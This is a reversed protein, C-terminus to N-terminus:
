PERTLKVVGAKALGELFAEASDTPVVVGQIGRLGHAVRAMYDTRALGVTFGSSDRVADVVAEFTEGSWTAGDICWTVTVM